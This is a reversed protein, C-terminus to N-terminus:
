CLGIGRYENNVTVDHINILPKCQFTSFSQFCNVLGAAKDDVYCLISFACPIRALESALSSKVREELAKGGGMPDLAYANLLDGIDKAHQSNSYDAQVIKINLDTGEDINHCYM